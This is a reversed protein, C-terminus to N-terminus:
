RLYGNSKLWPEVVSELIEILTSPEVKELQRQLSARKLAEALDTRMRTSIPTRSISVSNAVKTPISEPVSVAPKRHVFQRELEPDVQPTAKMGDVISRREM